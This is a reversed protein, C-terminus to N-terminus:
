WMMSKVINSLVSHMCVHAGLLRRVSSNGHRRIMFFLTMASKCFARPGFVILMFLAVGPFPCLLVFQTAKWCCNPVVANAVGMEASGM